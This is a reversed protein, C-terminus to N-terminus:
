LFQSSHLSVFQTKTYSEPRYLSAGLFDFEDKKNVDYYNEFMSPILTKGFRRPWLFFVYKHADEAEEIFSTKDM